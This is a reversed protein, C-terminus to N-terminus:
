LLEVAIETEDEDLEQGDAFLELVNVLVRNAGQQLLLARTRQVAQTRSHASHSHNRLRHISLAETKGRAKGALM